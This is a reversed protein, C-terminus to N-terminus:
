GGEKDDTDEDRRRSVEDLDDTETEAPEPELSIAPHPIMAQWHLDVNNDRGYEPLALTLGKLLYDETVDWLLILNWEAPKENDSDKLPFLKLQQCYFEAKQDSDGPPPIGGGRIAKLIRIHLGDFRILLGNNPLDERGFLKSEIGSKELHGKVKYRVMAPALYADIEHTGGSPPNDKFYAIAEQIAKEFASQVHPVIPSIRNLIEKTTPIRTTKM